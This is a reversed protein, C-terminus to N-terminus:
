DELLDILGPDVKAPGSKVVVKFEKPQIEIVEAVDTDKVGTPLRLKKTGESSKVEIQTKDRFPNSSRDLVEVPAQKWGEPDVVGIDIRNGDADVRNKPVRNGLKVRSTSDTDDKGFLKGLIGGVNFADGVGFMMLLVAVALVGISIVLAVPYRVVWNGVSKAGLKISDWLTRKEPPPIAPVKVTIREDPM